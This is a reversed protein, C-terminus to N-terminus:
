HHLSIDWGLLSMFSSLFFIFDWIDSDGSSDPSCQLSFPDLERGCTSWMQEMWLNLSTDPLWIPHIKPFIGFPRQGGRKKPLNYQLNKINSVFDELIAPVMHLYTLLAKKLNKPLFFSEWHVVMAFSSITLFLPFRSGYPRPLLKWFSSVASFSPFPFASKGFPRRLPFASFLCKVFHHLMKDWKSRYILWIYWLWDESKEAYIINDIPSVFIFFPVIIM